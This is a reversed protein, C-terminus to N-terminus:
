DLDIDALDENKKTHQRQATTNTRPPPPNRTVPPRVHRDRHQQAQPRSPPSGRGPGPRRRVGHQNGLVRTVPQPVHHTATPPSAHRPGSSTRAQSSTAAACASQSNAIDVRRVKNQAGQSFLDAAVNLFQLGITTGMNEVTQQQRTEQHQMEAPHPQQAASAVTQLLTPLVAGGGAPFGGPSGGQQSPPLVATQLMSLWPNGHSRGQNSTGQASTPLLPLFSQAVTGINPRRRAGNGALSASLLSSMLFEMPTAPPASSQPPSVQVNIRHQRCTQQLVQATSGLGENGHLNLNYIHDLRGDQIRELLIRGDDPGLNVGILEVFRLTPHTLIGALLQGHGKLNGFRINLEELRPMREATLADLLVALEDHNWHHKNIVSM